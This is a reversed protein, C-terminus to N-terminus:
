DKQERANSGTKQKYYKSNDQSFSILFMALPTCITMGLYNSLHIEFHIEAKFRITFSIYFQHGPLSKLYSLKKYFYRLKNIEDKLKNM